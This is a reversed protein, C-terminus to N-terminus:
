HKCTCGYPTKKRRQAFSYDSRIGMYNCSCVTGATEYGESISFRSCDIEPADIGLAVKYCSFSDLILNITDRSTVSVRSDSLFIDITNSVRLNGAPLPKFRNIKQALCHFDGRSSSPMGLIAGCYIWRGYRSAWVRM